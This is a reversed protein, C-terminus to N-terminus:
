LGLARTVAWWSGTLAIAVSGPVVITKRYTAGFRGLLRKTPISLIVAAALVSLQGLEVGINFGVLSSWFQGPPLGVDRIFGAFGLGHVLGFGFVIFPRWSRANRMFLNEIAVFAISAAILPEVISAPPAIIDAASLGLTATHALTFASVLIVLTRLRQAGLFLALVFLIHDLGGPLIHRIGITMYRLGADLASLEVGKEDVLPTSQPMDSSNAAALERCLAPGFGSSPDCFDDEPHAFAQAIVSLIVAALIFLARFLLVCPPKLCKTKM